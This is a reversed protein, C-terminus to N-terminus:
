SPNIEGFLGEAEVASIKVDMIQNRCPSPFLARV